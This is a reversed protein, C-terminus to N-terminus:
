FPPKDYYEYEPVTSKVAYTSAPQQKPSHTYDIETIRLSTTDFHCDVTTGAGGRRSKLIKGFMKDTPNGASDIERWFGFMFDCSEEIAGSDRASRITPIEDVTRNTQVLVVPIIDLSKAMPKFSRALKSTAQYLNDGPTDILGLYDIGVLTMKSKAKQEAFKVYQVIDVLSKGSKAMTWVHQFGVASEDDMRQGNKYFDEVVAGTSKIAIQMNREYVMSEPLELSCFLSHRKIKLQMNEFLATKGVGTSALIVVVEGPVFGRIIKGFKPLWDNILIRKVDVDKVYEIYKDELERWSLVDNISTKGDSEPKIIHICQKGDECLSKLIADNCGFDYKGGYVSEIVSDLEQEDFDTQECRSLWQTLAAKAMDQPFGKKKFHDALRFAYNNRQGQAAGGLLIKYICPKEGKPVECKIATSHNVGNSPLVNKPAHGNKKIESISELYVNKLAEVTGSEDWKFTPQKKLALETIAEIPEHLFVRPNLQIKFLDSKAHRTNVIRILRNLDYNVPDVRDAKCLKLAMSKLTAPLDISPAFGGFIHEPIFIHFGKNGSFFYAISGFDVGYNSNLGLVFERAWELSVSRDKEYDFDFLLYDSMMEGAYGAITNKGKKNKHTKWFDLYDIKFRGVTRWAPKNGDVFQKLKDLRVPNNRYSVDGIASDVYCYEPYNM